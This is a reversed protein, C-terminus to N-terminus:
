SFRLFSPTELGCRKAETKSLSLFLMLSPGSARARARERKSDHVCLKNKLGLRYVGDSLGHVTASLWDQPSQLGM